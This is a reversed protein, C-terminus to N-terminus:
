NKNAQETETIAKHPMTEQSPETLRTRTLQISSLTNGIENKRTTQRSKLTVTNKPKKIGQVSYGLRHTRGSGRITTKLM